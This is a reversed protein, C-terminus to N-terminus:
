NAVASAHLKPPNFYKKLALMQKELIHWSALSIAYAAAIGLSIKVIEEAVSHGSLIKARELVQKTTDFATIHLMYLGYSITGTFRLFRFKVLFPNNIAVTLFLGFGVALLFYTAWSTSSHNKALIATVVLAPITMWSFRRLRMAQTEQLTPLVLALLSGVALGDLRTLTNHYTDLRVFRAADATRLANTLVLMGVATPKLWSSKCFRIVLPWVLYYQEEIALSWTISIPGFVDGGNRFVNQVLVLYAQWPACSTFIESKLAPKLVPIVLFVFAILAYYLPWIRLGRKAYFNRFYNPDNRSKLLIGTILFGSLVFFLDVGFFGYAGLAKISAITSGTTAHYLMVSLVAIGRLVDFEEIYSPIRM